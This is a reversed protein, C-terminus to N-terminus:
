NLWKGYAKKIYDITEKIENAYRNMEDLKRMAEDTELKVRVVVEDPIGAM